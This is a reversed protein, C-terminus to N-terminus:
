FGGRKDTTYFQLKRDFYHLHTVTFLLSDPGQWEVTAHEGPMLGDKSVLKGACGMIRSTEEYTMGPRLESLKRQDAGCSLSSCGTVVSTCIAMTILRRAGSLRDCILMENAAGM